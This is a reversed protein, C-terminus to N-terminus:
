HLVDVLVEVESLFLNAIEPYLANAPFSQFFIISDVEETNVIKIIIQIKSSSQNEHM